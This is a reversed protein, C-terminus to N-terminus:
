VNKLLNIPLLYLNAPKGRKMVQRPQLMRDIKWYMVKNRFKVIVAASKGMLNALERMFDIPEAPLEVVPRNGFNGPSSFIRAIGCRQKNKELLLIADVGEFDWVPEYLMGRACFRDLIDKTKVREICNTTKM